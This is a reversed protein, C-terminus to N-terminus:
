AAMRIAELRVESVEAYIEVSDVKWVLTCGCQELDNIEKQVIKHEPIERLFKMM